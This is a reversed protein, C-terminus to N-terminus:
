GKTKMNLMKLYKSYYMSENRAKGQRRKREIKKEEKIGTKGRRDRNKKCERREKSLLTELAVNLHGLSLM